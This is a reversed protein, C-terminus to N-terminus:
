SSQNSNENMASDSVSMIIDDSKNGVLASINPIASMEYIGPTM